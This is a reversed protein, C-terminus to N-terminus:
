QNIIVLIHFLLITDIKEINRDFVPNPDEKMLKETDLRYLFTNSRPEFNYYNGDYTIYNRSTQVM